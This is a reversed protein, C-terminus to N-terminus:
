EDFDDSRLPVMAGPGSGTDVWVVNGDRVVRPETSGQPRREFVLAVPDPEDSDCSRSLESYEM